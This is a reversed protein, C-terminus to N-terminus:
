KFFFDENVACFNLIEVGLQSTKLQTEVTNFGLDFVSPVYLMIQM